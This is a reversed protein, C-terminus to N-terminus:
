LGANAKWGKAIRDRGRGIPYYDIAPDLVLARILQEGYFVHVVGDLEVLRLRYHNWEAGVQITHGRYGLNGCSTVKRLIAGPPYLAEPPVGPVSAVPEVVVTNFREAPTADAIGQHPREENYHARFAELLSQLEEPTKARPYEDLWEKMTRHFRELKGCTQPHYPRSNILKIGLQGLRREFEVEAGILRGTFCTGNDSLVQAPIGYRRIAWEFCAWAAKTTPADGVRAALCFRAHDDLIDMVWVESEDALLLRTADIQWLDNPSTREFRRTAPRPRTPSVPILHNRVLARHISSVAPPDIGKRRLEARIRRAGWKPHDKRMKCIREEVEAPMRQPQNLPQRSRPELGEIGESRYRRLYVYYTERSIEFRKCIASVTEGSRAAELLVELRLDSVSMVRLAM